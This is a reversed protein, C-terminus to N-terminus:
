AATGKAVPVADAADIAVSTPAPDSVTVAITDTLAGNSVTINCTGDGATRLVVSTGDAAVDVSSIVAVNDSSAMTGSTDPHVPGAADTRKLPIRLDFDNTVTVSGPMVHKGKKRILMPIDFALRTPKRHRGFRWLLLNRRWAKM